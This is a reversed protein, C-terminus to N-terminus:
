LYFRFKKFNSFFGKMLFFSKLDTKTEIERDLDSVKKISIGSFGQNKILEKLSQKLSM